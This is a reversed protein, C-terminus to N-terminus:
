LLLRSIQKPDLQSGILDGGKITIQLFEDCPVGVGIEGRNDFGILHADAM